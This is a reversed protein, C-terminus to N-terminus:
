VLARYYNQFSYLFTTELVTKYIIIILIKGFYQINLYTFHLTVFYNGIDTLKNAHSKFKKYDGIGM